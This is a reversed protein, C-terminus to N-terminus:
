KLIPTYHLQKRKYLPFRYAIGARFRHALIDKQRTDFYNYSALLTFNNIHTFLSVVPIVWFGQPPHIGTGRYKATSYGFELGPLIGAKFGKFNLLTTEHSLGLTWLHRKEHFQYFSNGPRPVLLKNYGIRTLFNFHIFVKYRSEFFGVGSHYMIDDGNFDFGQGIWFESFYLGKPKMGTFDSLKKLLPRNRTYFAYALVSRSKRLPSPETYDYQMIFESIATNETGIAINLPTFGDKNITGIAAGSEILYWVTEIQNALVAAMLPTNGNNDAIEPDAGWDLLLGIMENNGYFAALHMATSGDKAQLNVEAGHFLLFDAVYFSGFAAAHMLANTGVNSKPHIDAGVNLLAESLILDDEQAAYFLATYGNQDQHNINKIHPLIDLAVDKKGGLIAYMLVSTGYFDTANVDAGKFLLYRIINLSDGRLAYMLASINYYDKANVNVGAEVMEEITSFNQEYVATLFSMEEFEKLTQGSVIQPFLLFIYLGFIASSKGVLKMMNMTDILNNLVPYITLKYLIHIKSRNGDGYGSFKM